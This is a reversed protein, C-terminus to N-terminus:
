AIQAPYRALQPPRPQRNARAVRELREMKGEVVEARKETVGVRKVAPEARKEAM